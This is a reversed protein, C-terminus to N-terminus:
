EVVISGGLDGTRESLRWIIKSPDLKGNSWERIITEAKENSFAVFVRSNFPEIDDSDFAAPIWILNASFKSAPNIDLKPSNGVIWIERHDPLCALTAQIQQAEPALPHYGKVGFGNGHRLINAVEFLSFAVFTRGSSVDELDLKWFSTHMWICNLGLRTGPNIEFKPSNGVIWTTRPDLGYDKLIASLVDEDKRRVIFLRDQFFEDAGLSALRTRQTTDKGASYFFLEFDKSLSSLVAHLGDMPQPARIYVQEALEILERMISSQSPIGVRQCMFEYTRSMAQGLRETSLKITELLEENISNFLPHFEEPKFGQHRLITDFDDNVSKFIPQTNWLTDDGDFIVAQRGM